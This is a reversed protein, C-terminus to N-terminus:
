RAHRMENIALHIADFLATSGGAQIRNIFAELRDTDMTFPVAIEPRAQFQVIFYEDAPNGVHIFQKAANRLLAIKDGMSGSTDLVLGVSVPVDESSCSTIIQEVRRLLM